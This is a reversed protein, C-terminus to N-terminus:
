DSKQKKIITLDGSPEIFAMEVQAVSRVGNEHLSTLLQDNTLREKRLVEENLVGNKILVKATGDVARELRRFRFTLYSTLVTLGILTTAALLGIGINSSGGTLASSVTESLLLMTVLEMPSLSALEKKGGLRLLVLIAVYILAVRGMVELVVM